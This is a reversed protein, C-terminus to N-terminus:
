ASVAPREDWSAGRFLRGNSKKSRRVGDVGWVGWQKFFFAVGQAKCQRYVNEVWEERMPRAGAGSEGGVIAWHIGRLDFEGIDELLPEISIFRIAADIDVIAPIRVLGRQRDEVSVGLWVNTPVTRTSFFSRMREARKTLLQYTHQPTEAMVDVVREIYYDPVRKHFLDSMSNVFFVTPRRYSKPANLRAPLLTLDFGAEYGRTRMAQLRRAM